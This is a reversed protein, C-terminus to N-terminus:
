KEGLLQSGPRGLLKNRVCRVFYAPDRHLDRLIGRRTVRYFEAITSRAVRDREEESCTLIGLRAKVSEAEPLAVSTWITSTKSDDHIRFASALFEQAAPTRERALRLFLDYDFCFRLKTDLGGVREYASRRWFSSMQMFLQGGCLLSRFDQPFAYYKRILRGRADVVVGGCVLFDVDRRTAFFRGIQVLAGPLLYDDSNVWGLVEGTSREFGAAIAAAQGGDAQSQWYTLLDAYREVTSRSGDTSGGDMVVYELNPYGQMLVSCLTQELFSAQNYSPTVITIRPLAEGSRERPVGGATTRRWGYLGALTPCISSPSREHQREPRQM